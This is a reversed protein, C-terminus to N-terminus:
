KDQRSIINDVTKKNSENLKENGVNGNTKTGLIEIKKSLKEKMNSVELDMDQTSKRVKNMQTRLDENSSSIMKLLLNKFNTPMETM